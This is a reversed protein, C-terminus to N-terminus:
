ECNSTDKQAERCGMCGVCRKRVELRWKDMREEDDLLHKVNDLVLCCELISNVDVSSDYLKGTYFGLRTAM